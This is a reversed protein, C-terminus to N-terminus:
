RAERNFLPAPNLRRRWRVHTPTESTLAQALLDYNGWAEDAAGDNTARPGFASRDVARALDGFKHLPEDDLPAHDVQEHVSQGPRPRYGVELLRDNAEYWAGSLRDGPSQSRSRRRRSRRAKLGLVAVLPALPLASAGGAIALNRVLLSSGSGDEEEACEPPIEVDVLGACEDEKAPSKPTPPADGPLEVSEPSDQPATAILPDPEPPDQLEDTADDEPTVDVTIWGEGYSLVEVWATTDAKTVEITRQASSTQDGLDYGVVVRARVGRVNIAVAALAAFQEDRGRLPTSSIMSSLRSLAHGPPENEDLGASNADLFQGRNTLFDSFSQLEVRFNEEATGPEGLLNDSVWDNLARDGQLSQPLTRDTNDRSVFRNGDPGPELVADALRLVDDSGAIVYEVAPDESPDALTSSYPNFRLSGESDGDRQVSVPNTPTPLWPGDLGDTRVIRLEFLSDDYVESAVRPDHPLTQDVQEFTASNGSDPDGIHWTEGDYYGLAALRLRSPITTGSVTFVVDSQQEEITNNKLRILPSPESLPDFPPDLKDRLSFRDRDAFGPLQPAVLTAVLAVLAVSAAGQAIRRRKRLETTAGLTEDTDYGFERQQMWGLTLVLGFLLAGQALSMGRDEIGLVIGAAFAALAGIGAFAPVRVSRALAFGTASAFWALVFPQVLIPGKAPVPPITTLLEAWGKTLAGFFTPWDPVFTGSAVFGGVFLMVALSVAVTESSLLRFKRAAIATAAPMVAGVFAAVYLGTGDIVGSLSSAGVIALIVILAESLRIPLRMSM